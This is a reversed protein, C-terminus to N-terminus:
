GEKEIWILADSVTGPEWLGEFQPPSFDFTTVTRGNGFDYRIAGENVHDPDQLVTKTPPNM